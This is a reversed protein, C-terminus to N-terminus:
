SCGKLSLAKPMENSPIDFTGDFERLVVPIQWSSFNEKPRETRDFNIIDNPDTSPPLFDLKSVGDNNLIFGFSQTFLPACIDTKDETPIGNAHSYFAMEFHRQTYANDEQFISYFAEQLCSPSLQGNMNQICAEAKTAAVDRANAEYNNVGEFDYKIKAAWIKAQAELAHFILYQSYSTFNDRAKIVKNTHFQYAHTFEEAAATVRDMKGASVSASNVEDIYRGGAEQDEWFCYFVNDAANQQTVIAGLYTSAVNQALESITKQDDTLDMGEPDLAESALLCGGHASLTTYHAEAPHTNEFDPMPDAAYAVSSFALTAASASLAQKIM